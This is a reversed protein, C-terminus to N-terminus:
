FLLLALIAMLPLAIGAMWAFFKVKDVPLDGILKGTQGNMAFLYDKDQWKTHLMWVPLLAYKIQGKKINVGSNQELVTQYRNVTSRLLQSASGKIRRDVRQASAEATVDYKDALFGPLYATSFPKLESYDFPEIADMHNDPMKTSADAPVRQFIFSGERYVHYHDTETVRYEGANYTRSNTATYSASCDAEGDFLWFPVYVGKIESIHNASSFAKPLFVKGKYYNKLAQVAAEKNMKFPIVFDPKKGGSFQGPVISPNGCYVCATAATTEDCVIEAGCSPCSYSRMGSAEEESWDSGAGEANWNEAAKAADEAFAEEAKEEKQAFMAEIEAIEYISGCYECELKGSESAFHLPGTCAPCQYNTVQAAM